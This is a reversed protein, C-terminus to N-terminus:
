RFGALDDNLLERIEHVTVDRQKRANGWARVAYPKKRQPKPGLADRLSREAFASLTMGLEAARKKAKRLVEDALVLTTKM